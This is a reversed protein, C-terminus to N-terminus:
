FEKKLNFFFAGEPKQQTFTYEIRLVLDYTTVFDIGGGTGVLLKNSYAQNLGKEDYYPYNKVYGFDAFAKIYVALPLYSFQEIPMSNLTWSKGFIKKKITTKNLAFEPGEVVYNEFGRVLQNRYGLASFINYPQNQPNSWYGSTFNSLFFKNGLPWHHAYTVNLELQNVDDNPLLGAKSVWFTFQYGKLPYLVVDRHESNFSYSLAFYKQTTKGNNYYIPNLQLVTDVVEAERYNFSLSHTEFFSKRYSYGIGAGFSTRVVQKSELYVLKHDLTKYALNRPTGYDFNFTLGQKQKRDLNPIRYQLDFKRVYGFQATFRLSENRGRFNNKYLRLGYNIRSFDHNYNNWWENFNRDSLEFIPVPFIYWRETLEVLIDMHNSPLELARVAVTNFLRLNYLKNKDWQLSGQLASARITDGPKLSLEREIIRNRTIKNGIIIVRDVHLIRDAVSDVSHQRTTDATSQQFDMDGGAATLVFGLLLALM